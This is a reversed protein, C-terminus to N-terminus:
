ILRRADRIIDLRVRDRDFTRSVQLRKQISVNALAQESFVLQSAALDGSFQREAQFPSGLEENIVVGTVSM